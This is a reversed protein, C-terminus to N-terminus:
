IVRLIDVAKKRAVLLAPWIASVLGFALGAAPPSILSYVTLRPFIVGSVIFYQNHSTWSSLDIGNKSFFFVAAVGWMGGILCAVSNILVIESVILCAVEGSTVGMAKMIGYERLSKFIFVVFACSIGLSVVGFVLVIVISMSFYNLNILQVLDPMSEKWTTFSYNKDFLRRYLSVVSEPKVNNQVFVAASWTYERLPFANDPCFAIGTDMSAIGTKYIGSVKLDAPGELGKATFNLSEGVGIGLKGAITESLLIERSGERMNGGKIIKKILATAKGESVPDISVMDVTEVRGGFSIIGMTHVRKLVHTTGKVKLSDTTMEPPLGAAIIHGSFLGVSNRIMADNVGVALSSLFILTSVSAIVMLSLALTSRGSRILFLFASRIWHGYPTSPM